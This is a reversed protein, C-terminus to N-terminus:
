NKLFKLDFTLFATNVGGEGRYRDVIAPSVSEDNNELLYGVSTQPILLVLRLINQLSVLQSIILMLVKSNENASDSKFTLDDYTIGMSYNVRKLQSFSAPNTLNLHISDTYVSLGGMSRNDISGKFTKSGIGYFSYPSSTGSQSFVSFSFILVILNVLTKKM